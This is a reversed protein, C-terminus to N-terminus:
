GPVEEATALAEIKKTLRQFKQEYEPAVDVILEGRSYGRAIRRDDPIEMLIPIGEGRCYEVVRRDGIGARNIIVGHPISLTRVM